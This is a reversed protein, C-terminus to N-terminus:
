IWLNLDGYCETQEPSPKMKACKERQEKRKRTSFEIFRSRIEEDTKGKYSYEYMDLTAQGEKSSVPIPGIDTLWGDGVRKIRWIYEKGVKPGLNKLIPISEQLIYPNEPTGRFVKNVKIEIQNRKKTRGDVSIAQIYRVKGTFVYISNLFDASSGTDKMSSSKPHDGKALFPYAFIFIM